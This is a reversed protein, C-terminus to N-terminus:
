KNIKEILLRGDVFKSCSGVPVYLWEETKGDITIKGDGKGAKALGMCKEQESEAAFTSSTLSALALGTFAFIALLLKKNM